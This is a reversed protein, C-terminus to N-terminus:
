HNIEDLALNVLLVNVYTRGVLWWHREAIRDIVKRVDLESMGRAEAIRSVQFYATDLHIHPDLGSGSAFLLEVPVKKPVTRHSQYLYNRREQVLKQLVASTPGLNSGGSPLPNFDVASPRPWLYNSGTFKQAILRSGVVEGKVTVLSGNAKDYMFVYGVLAILLPYALGVVFMWWFLMRVSALLANM